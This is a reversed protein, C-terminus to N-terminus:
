VYFLFLPNFVPLHHFCNFFLQQNLLLARKECLYLGFVVTKAHKTEARGVLGGQTAMAVARHRPRATPSRYGHNGGSLLSLFPAITPADPEEEM